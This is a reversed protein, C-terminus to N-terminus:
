VDGDLIARLLSTLCSNDQKDAIASVGEINFKCTKCNVADCKLTSIAQLQEFEAEYTM